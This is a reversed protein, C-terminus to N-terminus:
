CRSDNLCVGALFVVWEKEPELTLVQPFSSTVAFVLVEFHWWFFFCAFGGGLMLGALHYRMTEEQRAKRNLKLLEPFMGIDDPRFIDPPLDSLLKRAGEGPEGLTKSEQRM